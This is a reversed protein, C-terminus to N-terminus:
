DVMELPVYQSESFGFLNLTPYYIEVAEDCVLWCITNLFFVLIFYSAVLSAFIKWKNEKVFKVINTM